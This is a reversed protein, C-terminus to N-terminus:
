ISFTTMQASLFRMVGAQDRVVLGQMPDVDIIQALLRKGGHELPLTQGLMACRQKWAPLWSETQDAQGLRSALATLLAEVVRLRDVQRGTALYLSTAQRKLDGPWDGAGQAVNVGIGIVVHTLGADGARTEVLIGAVKRGDILLDNPWKISVKIGAATELADAAALGALLTLSEAGAPLGPLLVSMLVSQGARAVWRHSRRGRGATQVDALAVLNHEGALQWCVENTSTTAQYVLTRTGLARNLRRSEAEIVDRWCGLATRELVVGREPSTEVLCGRRALVDLAALVEPLPARTDRLLSDMTCEAGRRWLALLTAVIIKKESTTEPRTM